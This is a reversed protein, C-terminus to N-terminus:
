VDGLYVVTQEYGGIRTGNHFAQPVTRLGNAAFQSRLDGFEIDYYTYAIGKKDLFERLRDCWPCNHRGVINWERDKYHFEIM